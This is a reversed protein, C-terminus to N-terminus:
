VPECTSGASQAGARPSCSAGCRRSVSATASTTAAPRARPPATTSSAPRPPPSFSSSMTWPALRLTAINPSFTVIKPRWLRRTRRRACCTSWSPSRRTPRSAARGARRSLASTNALTRPPCTRGPRCTHRTTHTRLRASARAAPVGPRANTSTAARATAGGAAALTSRASRARAWRSKSLSRCSSRALRARRPSSTRPSRPRSLLPPSASPPPARSHRRLIVPVSARARCRRASGM